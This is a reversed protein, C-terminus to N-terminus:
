ILTVVADLAQDVPQNQIVSNIVPINFDIPSVDLEDVFKNEDIINISLSDPRILDEVYNTKVITVRRASTADDENLSTAGLAITEYTVNKQIQKTVPTAFSISTSEHSAINLVNFRMFGVPHITNSIHNHTSSPVSSIVEYSFQQFLNSDTLICNRGLVGDNKNILAEPENFYAEASIQLSAGSGSSSISVSCTAPLKYVLPHITRVQLIAGVETSAAHISAGTGTGDIMLMPIDTFGWGQNLIQIGTIKGTGDISAVEASFGSGHRAGKVYIMDGISYGAGGNDIVVSTISGKSIRSVIYQGPSVQKSATASASIIDGVSYGKGGSSIVVAGAAVMSEYFTEGETTLEVAEDPVYQYDSVSVRLQMYDKGNVEFLMVSEVSCINNSQLGRISISYWNSSDDLLARIKPTSANNATTFISTHGGYSSASSYALKRRPYDIEVEEDFFAKFLFKFSQENGRSLYYERLFYILHSKQIKLDNSIDFGLDHLIDDIYNPSNNSVDLDHKFDLLVRTYNGDQELWEFYETLLSILKPYEDHLFEPLRSIIIPSITEKLM